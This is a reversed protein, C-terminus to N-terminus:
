NLSNQCRIKRHTRSPRLRGSTPRRITAWFSSTAVLVAKMLRTCPATLTQCVINSSPNTSGSLTSTSARLSETSSSTPTTAATRRSKWTECSRLSSRSVSSAASSFVMTSRSEDCVLSDNNRTTSTSDFLFAGSTNRLPIRLATARSDFPSRRLPSTGALSVVRARLDAQSSRGATPPPRRRCGAVSHIAGRRPSLFGVPAKPFRRRTARCDGCSQWRGAAWRMALPTENDCIPELCPFLSGTIPGGMWNTTNRYPSICSSGFLRSNLPGTSSKGRRRRRNRRRSLYGRRIGDGQNSQGDNLGRKYASTMSASLLGVTVGLPIVMSAPTDPLAGCLAMSGLLGAVTAAAYVGYLM